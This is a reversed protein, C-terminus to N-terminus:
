CRGCRQCERAPAPATWLMLLRCQRVRNEEAANSPNALLAITKAQPVLDAALELRKANLRSGHLQIQKEMGLTGVYEAAPGELRRLRV